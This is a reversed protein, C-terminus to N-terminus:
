VAKWTELIARRVLVKVIDRRYEPSSRMSDSRPKIEKVAEESANLVTKESVEQGRLAGEAKRARLPTPAVSALAIRIDKCRGSGNQKELLVAVGVIALDM